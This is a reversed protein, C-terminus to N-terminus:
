SSSASRRSRRGCSTPSGSAKTPTARRCASTPSWWTRAVSEIGNRVEVLDGYAAILDLDEISELVRVIGERALYNDEGLIVRIAV